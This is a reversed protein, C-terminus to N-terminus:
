RMKDRWRPLRPTRTTSSAAQHVALEDYGTKEADTDARAAGRELQKEGAAAAAARRRQPQFGPQLLREMKAIRRKGGAREREKAAAGIGAVREPRAGVGNVQAHHAIM